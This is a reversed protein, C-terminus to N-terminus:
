TEIILYIGPSQRASNINFMITSILRRFQFLRLWSNSPIM